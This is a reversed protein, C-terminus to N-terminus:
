SAEEEGTRGADRAAELAAVEVAWPAAVPRGHIPCAIFCTLRITLRGDDDLLASGLPVETGRVDRMYLGYVTM